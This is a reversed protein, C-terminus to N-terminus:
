RAKVILQLAKRDAESSPQAMAVSMRDSPVKCKQLAEAVGGAAKGANGWVDGKDGSVPLSVSLGVGEDKSIAGAVACLAKTGFPLVKGTPALVKATDVRLVVESPTTELKVMGSDIQKGIQKQVAASVASLRDSSARAASDKEDVGKQLSARKSETADLTSKTRVLTDDLERAKKALAEHEGLLKDYSTKLPVYFSFLFSVGGIGLLGALFWGWPRPKRHGRAGLAALELDDINQM